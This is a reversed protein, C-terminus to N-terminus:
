HKPWVQSRAKLLDMAEDEEGAHVPSLDRVQLSM